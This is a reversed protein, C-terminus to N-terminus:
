ANEWDEMNYGRMGGGVVWVGCDERELERGALYHDLVLAILVCEGLGELPWLM